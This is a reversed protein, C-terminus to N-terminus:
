IRQQQQRCSQRRRGRVCAQEFKRQRRLQFVDACLRSKCQETRRRQQVHLRGHFKKQRRRIAYADYFGPTAEMRSSRFNYRVRDELYEITVAAFKFENNMTDRWDISIPIGGQMTTIKGIKNAENLEVKYVVGATLSEEATLKDRVLFIGNPQMRLDGYYGEANLIQFESIREASNKSGGDSQGCGAIFLIGVLLMLVKAFFKERM